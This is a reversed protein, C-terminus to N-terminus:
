RSSQAFNLGNDTTIQIIKNQIGYEELVEDIIRTVENYTHTGIATRCALVASHRDLTSPDLWHATIGM